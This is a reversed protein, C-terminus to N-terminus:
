SDQIRIMFLHRESGERTIRIQADMQRAVKRAAYFNVLHPNTFLDAYQFDPQIMAEHLAGDLEFGSVTVVVDLACADKKLNFAIGAKDQILSTSLIHLLINSLLSELLNVNVGEPLHNDATFSFDLYDVFANKEIVRRLSTEITYLDRQPEATATERQVSNVYMLQFLRKDLESAHSDLFNILKKQEDDAEKLMLLNILGRMTALPGRIDHATRYVFEELDTSRVANMDRSYFQLVHFNNVPCIKTLHFGTVAFSHLEGKAGKLVISFEQFTPSSLREKLKLIDEDADHLLLRLHKDALDESTYKLETLLKTSVGRICLHEDLIIPNLFADLLRKIGSDEQSQLNRFPEM